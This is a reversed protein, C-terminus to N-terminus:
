KQVIEFIIEFNLNQFSWAASTFNSKLAWFVIQTHSALAVSEGLEVGKTYYRMTTHHCHYWEILTIKIAYMQSENEISSKYYM